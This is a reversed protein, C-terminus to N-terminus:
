VKGQQESDKGKVQKGEYKGIIGHKVKKQVASFRNKAREVM